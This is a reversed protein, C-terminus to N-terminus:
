LDCEDAYIFITKFKDWENKYFNNIHQLDCGKSVKINFKNLEQKLLEFNFNEVPISAQPYYLFSFDEYQTYKKIFDNKLQLAFEKETM